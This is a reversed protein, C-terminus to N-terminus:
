QAVPFYRNMSVLTQSLLDAVYDYQEEPLTPHKQRLLGVIDAKKVGKASHGTIGFKRCFVKLEPITYTEYETRSESCSSVAISDPSYVEGRLAAAVRKIYSPVQTTTMDEFMGNLGKAAIALSYGLDRRQGNSTNDIVISNEDLIQDAGASALVEHALKDLRFFFLPATFTEHELKEGKYILQTKVGWGEAVLQAFPIDLEPVSTFAEGRLNMMMEWFTVVSQRNYVSKPSVVIDCPTGDETAPMDSDPRVIAVGKLGGRTTMKDGTQMVQNEEVVIDYRTVPKGYLDAETETIEIVKASAFIKKIKHTIIDGTRLDVHEALEDKKTVMDGVSVNITVQGDTLFRARYKRKATLKVAASESVMFADEYTDAGLDMVATVLERGDLCNNPGTVVLDTEPNALNIAQSFQTSLLNLRKPTFGLGIGSDEICRSFMGSGEQIRGDVISTGAVLRFVQNITGSASTTAPDLKGLMSKPFSQRDVDFMHADNVLYVSDCVQAIQAANDIDVIQVYKSSTIATDISSQVASSSIPANRYYADTLTKILTDEIIQALVEAREKVVYDMEISSYDQYAVRVLAYDIGRLTFVGDATIKPLNITQFHTFPASYGEGEINLGYVDYDCGDFSDVHTITTNLGFPQVFRTIFAAIAAPKIFSM